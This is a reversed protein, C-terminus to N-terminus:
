KIIHIIISLIYLILFGKSHNLRDLSDFRTIVTFSTNVYNTTSSDQSSSTTQLTPTTQTNAVPAVVPPLLTTNMYLHLSSNATATTSICPQLFISHLLQFFYNLM